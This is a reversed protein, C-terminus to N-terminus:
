SKTPPGKAHSGFLGGYSVVGKDVIIGGGKNVIIGGGKGVGAGKGKGQMSAPPTAPLPPFDNMDRVIAKGTGRGAGRHAPPPQGESPQAGLLGQGPPQVGLLGQGPPQAGLLGRGPPVAGRPGHAPPGMDRLSDRVIPQERV